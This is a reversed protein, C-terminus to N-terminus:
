GPGMTATRDGRKGPFVKRTMILYISPYLIASALADILYHEGLYLIAWFMIALCGLAAKQIWPAGRDRAIMFVLLTVGIHGSPFAGYKMGVLNESWPFVEERIFVLGTSSDRIPSALNVFMQLTYQTLWTAWFALGYRWFDRESTIAVLYYLSGVTIFIIVWSYSLFYDLAVHRYEQLWISPEVTFLWGDGYRPEQATHFQLTFYYIGWTALVAWVALNRRTMVKLRMTSADQDVCNGFNGSGEHNRKVAPGGEGEQGGGATDRVDDDGVNEGRDVGRITERERGKDCEAGDEVDNGSGRAERPQVGWWIHSVIRDVLSARPNLEVIGQKWLIKM